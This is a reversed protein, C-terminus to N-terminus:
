RCVLSKERGALGEVHPGQGQQGLFDEAVGGGRPIDTNSCINRGQGLAGDKRVQTM